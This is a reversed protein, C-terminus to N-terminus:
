DVQRALFERILKAILDGDRHQSILMNMARGRRWAYPMMLLRGHWFAIIFPKGDDWLRAPSEEGVVRWRGTRYVIRIYQAAGWCLVSRIARSREIAKGISLVDGADAGPAPDPARGSRPSM